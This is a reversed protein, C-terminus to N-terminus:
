KSQNATREACESNQETRGFHEMGHRMESLDTSIPCAPKPPGFDQISLYIRLLINVSLEHFARQVLVAFRGHM